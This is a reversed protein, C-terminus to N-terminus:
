GGRHGNPRAAKVEALAHAIEAQVELDRETQAALRLHREAQEGGFRGLAWAAHARVLPEGHAQMAECLRDFDAPDRRNGLVIAANRAMGIRRARATASPKLPTRGELYGAADPSADHRTPAFAPDASPRAFRANWPCVQQCVDCGFLWDGISPRLEIPIPGRNEITQYSICRTADLTRDPLICDTPCAEVCRQCSGCHDVNIPDDPELPQSLLAEGLLFYSGHRPHILCTNRGIWGLGARQALERELLPGTDTYLRYEFSPEARPRLFIMLQELRPLIVQHYDDGVAYAALRPGPDTVPLSHRLGVVLISRCNPLIARPDARRAGARESALYTMTGHRGAELWRRYTDLHPPPDPTTVGALEFGLRSAEQKVAATLAVRDM